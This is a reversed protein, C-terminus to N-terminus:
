ASRRRRVFVGVGILVIGLPLAILPLTSTAFKLMSVNSKADDVKDKVEADTFQVKLDLLLQTGDMLREQHDVRNVIAGTKPEVYYTGDDKYTGNIGALIDVNEVDVVTRYKYVELGNIKETGDFTADVASGATGDWVKYTKKEADFPFKNVLGDQPPAEGIYKKDSVAEGTSRDTAFVVETANVLRGEPDDKTVCSDIGDKDLVLCQSSKYVVVDHDSKGGDAVDRKFVKVPAQELNALDSFNAPLLATGVLDTQENTDVPALKLAGPLYTLAIVGTALIFGGLGILVLSGVSSLRGRGRKPSEPAAGRASQDTMTM